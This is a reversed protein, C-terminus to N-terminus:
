QINYGTPQIVYNHEWILSSSFFQKIYLLEYLIFMIGYSCWYEAPVLKEVGWLM